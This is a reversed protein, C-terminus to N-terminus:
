KNTIEHKESKFKIYKLFVVFFSFSIFKIGMFLKLIIFIEHIKM